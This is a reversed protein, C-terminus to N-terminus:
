NNIIKKCDDLYTNACNSFYSESPKEDKNNLTRQM